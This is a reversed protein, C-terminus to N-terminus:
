VSPSHLVTYKKDIARLKGLAKEYRKAYTPVQNLTLTTGFKINFAKAIKQNSLNDRKSMWVFRAKEQPKPLKFSSRKNKNKSVKRFASLLDRETSHEDIEIYLANAKLQYKTEEVNLGTRIIAAGIKHSSVGDIIKEKQKKSYTDDLPLLHRVIVPSLIYDYVFFKAESTYIKPIEFDSLLVEVSKWFDRERNKDTHSWLFVKEGDEFGQSPVNFIKRLHVVQNQFYPHDVLLTYLSRQGDTFVKDRTTVYENEM